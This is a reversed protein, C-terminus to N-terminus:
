DEQGPHTSVASQSSSNTTRLDRGGHAGDVLILDQGQSLLSLEQPLGVEGGHLLYHQGRQLHPSAACMCVVLRGRPRGATREGGGGDGTKRESPQPTM